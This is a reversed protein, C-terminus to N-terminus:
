RRMGPVILGPVRQVTQTQRQAGRVMARLLSALAQATVAQVQLCTRLADCELDEPEGEAPRPLSEAAAMAAGAANQLAENVFGPDDWSV